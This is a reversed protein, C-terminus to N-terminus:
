PDATPVPEAKPNAVLSSEVPEAPLSVAQAEHILRVAAQSLRTRLQYRDTAAAIYHIAVEVGDEVTRLNISPTASFAKVSYGRTTSQWQREAIEAHSKTEKKVEEEMKAIIPYPDLGWPILTRIEDWLYQGATTFNFYCSEVAYSNLFSVKRGTPHGPENWNGTELLITRLLTIEVVEGRVGSIEVWDGPHVGHRGMLIFWGFFSVIFDKLAVALGAGALGVITPMNRPSGFIIVLIVLVTLVDLAFRTVTHLTARQRRDLRLRALARGLLQGVLYAVFIVLIIWLSELVIAHLAARERVQVLAAWQGYTTTLQRLDEIRTDFDALTKEDASLRHLHSLTASTEATLNVPASQQMTKPAPTAAPAKAGGSAPGAQVLRELTQHEQALLSAAHQSGRQARLLQTQQSRISLWARCRGILGGQVRAGPPPTNPVVSSALAEKSHQTAEHQQWLREIQAYVSGGSRALDNQADALTDQQLDREAQALELEAELTAQKAGKAHAAEVKLRTIKDTNGSISAQLKAIREQLKEADATAPVTQQGASRLADAFALDVNRDALRVAQQALEQEEPTVALAALQHATALLQEEALLTKNGMAAATQRHSAHSEPPRSTLVLAAIAVGVLALLAALTLKQSGKM